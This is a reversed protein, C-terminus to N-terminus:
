VFTVLQFWEKELTEVECLELKFLTGQGEGKEGRDVGYEDKQKPTVGLGTDGAEARTRGWSCM